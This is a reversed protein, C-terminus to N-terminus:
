NQKRNVEFNDFHIKRKMLKSKRRRNFVFSELISPTCSCETSLSLSEHELLEHEDDDDDDDDDDPLESQSGTFTIISFPKSGITLLM